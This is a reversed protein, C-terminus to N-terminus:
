LAYFSKANYTFIKELLSRDLNEVLSADFEKRPFDSGFILLEDSEMLEIYKNLRDPDNIMWPEVVFRMNRKMYESPYQKVWPTENRLGKWATDMRWMFFPVWEFGGGAFVVKLDPYREFVGNFILSVVQTVVSQPHATSRWPWYYRMRGGASALVSEGTHMCVILKHRAASEFIPHYQPEGLEADGIHMSVQVMQPHDALREIEEVARHPEPGIQISGLFRKDKNLWNEIFWDNYATARAAAFEYWSHDSNIYTLGNLIAYDFNLEDFLKKALAEATWHNAPRSEFFNHRKEPQWGYDTIYEQWPEDLYPVIDHWSALPEHVDVDIAGKITM